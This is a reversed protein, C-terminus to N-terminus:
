RFRYPFRVAAPVPLVGVAPRATMPGSASEFPRLAPHAALAVPASSAGAVHWPLGPAPQLSPVSLSPGSSSTTVAASLLVALAGLAACPPLWRAAAGPSRRPTRRARAASSRPPVTLRHAPHHAARFLGAMSPAARPGAAALHLHM